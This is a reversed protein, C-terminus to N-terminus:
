SQYRETFFQQLDSIPLSDVVKVQVYEKEKIKEIRVVVDQELSSLSDIKKQYLEDQEKHQEIKINLKQITKQYLLIEVQNNLQMYILLMLIFLGFWYDKIFKVAAM